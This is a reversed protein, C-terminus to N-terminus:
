SAKAARKGRQVGSSANPGAVHPRSALPTSTSVKASVPTYLTFWHQGSLVAASTSLPALAHQSMVPAIAGVSRARPPAM